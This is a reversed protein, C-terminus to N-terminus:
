VSFKHPYALFSLGIHQLNIAPANMVNTDTL